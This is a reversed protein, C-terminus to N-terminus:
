TDCMEDRNYTRCIRHWNYTNCYRDNTNAYRSFVMNICAGIVPDHDTM